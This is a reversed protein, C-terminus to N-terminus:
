DRLVVVRKSINTNGATLRVLYVGRAVRDGSEDAGDWTCTYEGADRVSHELVRVRRGAVDFVRLEVQTGGRAIQYRVRIPGPSAAVTKVDLATVWRTTSNVSVPGVITESGDRGILVLRYWYTRGAEVQLDDFAMAAAPELSSTTRRVFPGSEEAAREIHVGALERVAAASLSWTVIIGRDSSQASLNEVEVAVPLTQYNSEHVSQAVQVTQRLSAFDPAYALALSFRTTQGAALRFPGSALLFGINWPGTLVPDFRDAPNPATFQDWLRQPWNSADTYFVINDVTPDPNGVGPRIRNLKFGTVGLQDAEHPDMRDFEPEGSTPVQDGEGVDQTGPLGDAGVDQATTWDMDEDGTWWSNAKYAPRNELPGYRARFRLTDYHAVVFDRIAGQGTIRTGPGGDQREDTIGDLDNDLGDFPDGATQLFSCGLYGTSSCPGSLDVGHGFLDWAYALNLGSSTDCYANDDDSEFTGDCSLSTGGVGPDMYVGFILNDNYDTTGENTIDYHWFIVDSVPTESWQLSRVDIRLALGRRGPDNQDPVFLPWADYAQDDLVMYSEQTAGIRKGFYGNWHGPWGPDTADDLRDPWYPPWTRPDTSVAPSRTLNIAPDVQFYGPRPEFRMVRDTYPSIGQRERFGTEMIYAVSGDSQMIRSLIFPTMGDSYNMGSGIPAEISHFVTLDVNGPDAPFDGIMGYNWFLTRINGGSHMGMREMAPDGRQDPPVTLTPNAGFLPASGCLLIAAALGARLAASSTVIPGM